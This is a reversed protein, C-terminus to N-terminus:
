KGQVNGMCRLDSTKKLVDRSENLKNLSLKANRYSTNPGIIATLEDVIGHVGEQSGSANKKAEGTGVGGGLVAFSLADDAGEVVGNM